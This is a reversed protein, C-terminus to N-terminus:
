FVGKFKTGQIALRTGRVKIAKGTSATVVPQVPCPPYNVGDPCLQPRDNDPLTPKPFGIIGAAKLYDDDPGKKGPIVKTQLPRGYQRYFDRNAPMIKKKSTFYEGKARKARRASEVASLGKIALGFKGIPPISVTNTVAIPKVLQKATNVGAINLDMAKNLVANSIPKAGGTFNNKLNNQGTTNNAMNKNMAAVHNAQQVASVKSFDAGPGKKSKDNPGGMTDGGYRLKIPFNPNPGRKPPPGSRKGSVKNKKTV